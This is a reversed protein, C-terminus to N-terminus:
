CVEESTKVTYGSNADSTSIKTEDVKIKLSPTNRSLGFSDPFMIAHNRDSSGSHQSRHQTQHLNKRANLTALLSNAYLKSIVFHIGMFILNTHMTLWCILSTVTAACTLSGNEFAYLMLADLIGNMSSNKKHNQLLLYCLLTTILIDLLSSLSLGCSFSWTYLEVFSKLSKLKIMKATTLCAFCLRACALLGLPIAIVFNNMSLKFIRFIFFLHVLFTLVATFAITIALSWPIYDIRAADGFHAILHDWLAVSVFITHCFDLFWVVGVLAKIGRPDNVYYKFYSFAQATVMGSFVAAIIGGVMLAGFTKPIDVM